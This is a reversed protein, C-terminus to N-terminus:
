HFLPGHLLRIGTTAAIGIVIALRSLERVGQLSDRGTFPFFPTAEVYSRFEPGKDKLMRQEQHWCGLITFIPFGAFFAVDTTSANAVLHLLGFIAMGLMTPHRTIRHIGRIEVSEAGGMAASVVMQKGMNGAVMLTFAVAMLSYITWRLIPGVQVTWMWPGAHRNTFYIRCLTAFIVLAVLSFVGMYGQEGLKEVLRPRVRTSSLAIHSAGFAIWLLVIWSAPSM